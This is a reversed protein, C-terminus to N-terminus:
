VSEATAANALGGTMKGLYAVVAENSRMSSFPLSKSSDHFHKINVILQLELTGMLFHCWGQSYIGFFVGVGKICNNSIGACWGIYSCGLDSVSTASIIQLFLFLQEKM